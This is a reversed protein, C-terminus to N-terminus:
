NGKFKGQKKLFFAAVGENFDKTGQTLLLQDGDMHMISQDLASVIRNISKKIMQAPIPPMAAYDKAIEITRELLKDKPVVEYLFGWKLLTKADNNKGLIVMEKAYTPGILHVVIPLSIWSLSMGLRSEPFGAKCDEAGIRFDLASVICAGGGLAFGNIAAITIQNMEYLCRVMKPGLNYDRQRGLLTKSTPRQKLDVGVSFNKGAGTFIVVRTETDDHFEETVKIVEKMLDINLANLKDPRNLTVIAIHDERREILLYEYEM